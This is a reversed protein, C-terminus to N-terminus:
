EHLQAARQNAPQASDAACSSFSQIRRRYQRPLPVASYPRGKGNAVRYPLAIDPRAIIRPAVISASPQPLHSLLAHKIIDKEARHLALNLLRTCAFLVPSNAGSAGLPPGSRASRPPPHIAIHLTFSSTFAPWHARQNAANKVRSPLMLGKHESV